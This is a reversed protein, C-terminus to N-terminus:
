TVNEAKPMADYSLLVYRPKGSGVQTTQVTIQCHKKLHNNIDAANEISKSVKGRITQNDAIVHFEYDRKEPLVGLFHGTFTQEQERLNEQSLREVSRRVEGVDKFQFSKKGFSLACVAEQEALVKIFSHLEKVARPSLESVADALEEDDIGVSAKMLIRAQEIANEIPSPIDLPLQNETLHEELNFGFSGVATGTVLLQYQSRNPIPGKQGLSGSQSAAFAVIAETFREVVASGFEAFIGYTGVVPKGRFTLRAKFPERMHVPAEELAKNVSDLRTQLSMRDIVHDGPMKQLLRQLEKRESLLHQYEQFNM